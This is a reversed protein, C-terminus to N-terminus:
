VLCYYYYSYKMTFSLWPQVLDLYFCVQLTFNNINELGDTKVPFDFVDKHIFNGNNSQNWYKVKGKEQYIIYAKVILSSYNKKMYKM